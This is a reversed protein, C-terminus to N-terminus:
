IFSFKWDRHAAARHRLLVARVELSGSHSGPGAPGGDAHVVVVDALEPVFSFKFDCM